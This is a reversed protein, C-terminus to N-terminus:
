CKFPLFNENSVHVVAWFTEKWMTKNNLSCMLWHTSPDYWQSLVLSYYWWHMWCQLYWLRTSLWWDINWVDCNGECGYPLAPAVRCLGVAFEFLMHVEHGIGFGIDVISSWMSDRLFAGWSIEQEMFSIRGIGHYPRYLGVNLAM